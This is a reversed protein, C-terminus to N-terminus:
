NGTSKQRLIPDAHFNGAETNVDGNVQGSKPKTYIATEPLCHKLASKQNEPDPLRGADKRQPKRLWTNYCLHVWKRSEMLGDIEANHARTTHQITKM